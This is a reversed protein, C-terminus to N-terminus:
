PSTQNPGAAASSMSLSSVDFSSIVPAAFVSGVVLKRVFSRRSDGVEAVIEDDGSMGDESM